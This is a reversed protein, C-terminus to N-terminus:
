HTGDLVASVAAQLQEDDERALQDYYLLTFDEDSIEIEIDPTIGGVESLDVRNPTMYKKTSIHLASGDSLLKTIQSRGKGTTQQGVVTAWDYERLAAAFFEAASYSNQNVLVAMPMEVCSAGSKEVKETGDKSVSVFIEGEPLLYDLMATLESVLGGPDNRVDFILGVAGQSQLDEVAAIFDDCVGSDFNEITILGVGSDLLEYSV